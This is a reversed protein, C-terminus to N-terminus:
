STRASWTSALWSRLAGLLPVVLLASASALFVRGALEGARRAHATLCMAPVSMRLKSAAAVMGLDVVGLGAASLLRLLALPRVARLTPHSLAPTTM